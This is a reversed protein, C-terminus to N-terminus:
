RLRARVDGEFRLTDSTKLPGIRPREIGLDSMRIEFVPRATFRGGSERVDVRADVAHSHGNMQVTGRVLWRSSRDAASGRWADAEISTSAFTVTPFRGARTIDRMKEDRSGNGSDFSAVPISLRVTSRSPRDLDLVLTGSVESSTGSWDHLPASGTYTMTSGSSVHVTQASANPALAGSFALAAMAPLRFLPSLKMIPYISGFTDTVSQM